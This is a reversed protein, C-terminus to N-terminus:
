LNGYLVVFCQICHLPKIAFGGSKSNGREKPYKDKIETLSLNRLHPYIKSAIFSHMDNEDGRYFELLDPDLSQNVLIFNEQLTVWRQVIGEGSESDKRHM